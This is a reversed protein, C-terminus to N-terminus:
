NIVWMLSKLGLLYFYTSKCEQNQTDLYRNHRAESDIIVRRIGAESDIGNLM